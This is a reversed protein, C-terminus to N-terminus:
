MWVAIEEITKRNKAPIATTAAYGVPILAIPEEHTELHLIEKCKAVDFNCVWCTGLGLDAAQLTIHDIAIASDVDTFDKNDASRKWAMNHLGVMIIIVPASKIWERHYCNAVKQRMEADNKLIYLKIPQYNVASPANQAAEILALLIEDTVEESSFNRVSYRSKSLEKFNM